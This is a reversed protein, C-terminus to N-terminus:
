ILARRFKGLSADFSQLDICAFVPVNKVLLVRCVEVFIPVVQRPLKLLEALFQFLGFLSTCICCFWNHQKVKAATYAICEPWQNLVKSHRRELDLATVERLASDIEDFFVLKPLSLM